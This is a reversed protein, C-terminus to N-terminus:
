LVQFAEFRQGKVEGYFSTLCRSSLRSATCWGSGFPPPLPPPTPLSFPLSLCIPSSLLALYLSSPSSTPLLLLLRPPRPWEGLQSRRQAYAVVAVALLVCCVLTVLNAMQPCVVASDHVLSASPSPAPSSPLPMPHPTAM